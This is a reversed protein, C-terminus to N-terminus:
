RLAVNEAWRRRWGEYMLVTWLAYAWNREGSLHEAWLKHVAPVNLLGGGLRAPDLLDEAWSRLPGRLWEALPIGFGMKPRDVLARPVYRDLVRRLLWKSQGDHVRMRRPLRLAFEVVRHDLLPPRVELSVAMSARDVKQLIDDPMYTTIDFLQMQEVFRDPGAPLRWQLSIPHEAVGNTLAAPDPCQSVLRLYFAERDLPLVAALKRLKDVPNAPRLRSPLLRAAANILAEPTANIMAALARRLFAPSRAALGGLGYGLAYRNYGAFLEDGGDGSLAVTVYGRTLKSILHTPIQSSDAFPEDYMEALQPVVALADAATVTLECHDTGLHAAVAAAHKSEDYGAVDFGISFTRVPGRKAAVMLAVVTSSDIGGSLFAGLPVDSIMQGGVADILLDNLESEAQASTGTFPHLLGSTAVEAVSWYQRHTISRGADITVIEGAKIKTVGRFISYPTPVYGFRLFSAVSAPDIEFKLGAAVLAKLESAFWLGQANSTFVLPKIGLRDRILHLTSEARDWLALAFMGNMDALTRDIGRHAFSELIVETDSTGKFAFGALEPSAAIAAANYVEGNYSIVWRGDASIMPQAGNGTLDIIALRRQALAVGADADQWVGSGDPGRNAIADSMVRARRVLDPASVSGLFDIFGAVGCM